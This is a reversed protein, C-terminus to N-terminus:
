KWVPTLWHVADAHRKAWTIGLRSRLAINDTQFTSMVTGTAGTILDGSPTTSQQVATERSARIEVAGDSASVVGDVAVALLDNGVSSSGLTVPLQGGRSRAAMMKARATSAIFVVDGGVPAVADLLAAIDALMAEHLDTSASPTSAAVGQRLGAPRATSAANSDFLASDLALGVSRRLLESMLQESNSSDMMERTLSLLAMLKHTTMTMPVPVVPNAFPIPAGEVVWSAHAASAILHPLSVNGSAGFSLQLCRALLQSGAGIAGLLVDSIVQQVLAPASGTTTPTTAAKVITLATMDDAVEREASRNPASFDTPGVKTRAIALVARALAAYARKGNRGLDEPVLPRAM